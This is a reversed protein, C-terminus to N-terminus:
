LRNSGQAPAQFKLKGHPFAVGRCSRDGDPGNQTDAGVIPPGCKSSSLKDGNKMQGNLVGVGLLAAVENRDLRVRRLPAAQGALEDILRV